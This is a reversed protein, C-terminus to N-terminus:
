PQPVRIKTVGVYRRCEAEIEAECQVFDSETVLRSLDVINALKLTDTPENPQDPLDDKIQHYPVSLINSHQTSVQNKTKGIRLDHGKLTLKTM